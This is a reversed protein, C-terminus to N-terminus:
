SASNRGRPRFTKNGGPQKQGQRPQSPRQPGPGRSESRPHESRNRDPGQPRDSRPRDDNARAAQPRESSRHEDTRRADPRRADDPRKGQRQQGPRPQGQRNGGGGERRETNSRPGHSNIGGRKPPPAFTGPDIGVVDLKGKILKEIDRLYTRESPDCFSIACGKAGARATRGIRHVYSEAENPLEYNIVHTVDDIDIGRAMIDTAVIARAEGKRFSELAKQRAGQSKNGHIASSRIGGAELYDSVRNAGHKTRTFIIVRGYAPDAMMEMLKTRKEASDLFMVSQDIREVTTAQPTIEVRKPMHLYESVLKSIEGPMTASFLLSQREKPVAALIKRVDKVFGMDLMRDAEDLILHQVKDLRVNKQTMHDLLRGPTAVLIDLGRGLAQLQPNYSVGGFVSATRIGLHRGYVRISEHIQIVLERTPALILARVVKPSHKYPVASLAQLLPLAFAATKGTGTQAIGLLDHGKLLLPISQEQIPTPHLYNETIM